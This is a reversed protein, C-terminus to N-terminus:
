QESNIIIKLMNIKNKMDMNFTSNNLQNYNKIMIMCENVKLKLDSFNNINMIVAEQYVIEIQFELAQKNAKSLFTIDNELLAKQINLDINKKIIEQADELNKGQILAVLKAIVKATENLQRLLFDEKSFM